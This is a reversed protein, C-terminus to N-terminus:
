VYAKQHENGDGLVDSSSCEGCDVGGGHGSVM